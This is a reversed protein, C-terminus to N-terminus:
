LLSEGCADTATYTVECFDVTSVAGPIRVPRAEGSFKLLIKAYNESTVTM